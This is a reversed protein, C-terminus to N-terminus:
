GSVVNQKHLCDNDTLEQSNQVFGLEDKLKQLLELKTKRSHDRSTVTTRNEEHRSANEDTYLEQGNHGISNDEEDTEGEDTPHQYYEYQESYRNNNDQKQAELVRMQTERLDEEIQRAENEKRQAEQANEEALLRTKEIEQV